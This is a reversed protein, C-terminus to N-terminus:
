QTAERLFKTLAATLSRSDSKLWRSLAETIAEPQGGIILSAKKELEDVRLALANREASLESIHVEAHENARKAEGLKAELQRARDEAARVQESIAPVNLQADLYAM